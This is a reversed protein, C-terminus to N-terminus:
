ILNPCDNRKHGKTACNSCIELNAYEENRPELLNLNHARIVRQEFCSGSLPGYSRSQEFDEPIVFYRTVLEFATQTSETLSAEGQRQYSLNKHIYTPVYPEQERTNKKTKKAEDKKAPTVIAIAAKQPSSFDLKQQSGDGLGLRPKKKPTETTTTSAPTSIVVTPSTTTALRQEEQPDDDDLILRRKATQRDKASVKRPTSAMTIETINNNNL